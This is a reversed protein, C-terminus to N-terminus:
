DLAGRQKKLQGRQKKASIRREQSGRTPRTRRRVPGPPALAQGVAM